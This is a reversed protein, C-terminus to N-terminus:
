GFYLAEYDDMMREMSFRSRARDRAASGMHRLLGRDELLKRLATALEDVSGPAPLLGEVGETVAEPIGSTRSAVIANGAHMGELMALPLGEWLSPMVLIHSAAMLDKLDSRHGPLHVRGTLENEAIFSELNGREEGEGAIILKWPVSCGEARAKVLARLLVVHGKRPVLSGAAIMVVDDDSLHFEKRPGSPDGIPAPVGNPITLIRHPPLSITDILHRRTDESVAVTADSVWFAWRLALRRRLVDTMTQNGHMTIVHRRRLIRSAAAGYVAMHFEHSHIVDVKERRLNRVLDRLHVPDLPRRVLFPIPEFGRSRFEGGLWGTKNSPLIPVV